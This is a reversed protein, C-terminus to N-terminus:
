LEGLHEKDVDFNVQLNVTFVTGNLDSKETITWGHVAANTM